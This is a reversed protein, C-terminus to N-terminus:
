AARRIAPAPSETSKCFSGSQCEPPPANYLADLQAKAEVKQGRCTATTNKILRTEISPWDCIGLHSIDTGEEHAENRYIRETQLKRLEATCKHLLRHAQSRARDVSAQLRAQSEVQMPDPTDAPAGLAAFSEEVLGCRRLRWMTRRIEDVLNCELMGIPALDHFLSANLEEYLHEEGPRIFDHTAYLGNTTANKSSASLGEPTRPGTSSRANIANAALQAPTTSM